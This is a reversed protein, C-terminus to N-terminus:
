ALLIHLVHTGLHGGGVGVGGMDHVLHQAVGPVDAVDAHQQRLGADDLYQM